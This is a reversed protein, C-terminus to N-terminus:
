IRSNEKIPMLPSVEDNGAKIRRITELRSDMRLKFGSMDVSYTAKENAVHNEPTSFTTATKTM